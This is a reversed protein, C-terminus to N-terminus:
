VRRKSSLSLHISLHTYWGDLLFTAIGVTKVYEWKNTTREYSYLAVRYGFFSSNHYHPHPLYAYSSSGDHHSSSDHIRHLLSVLSSYPLPSLPSHPPIPSHPQTSHTSQASKASQASQTSQTSQLSKRADLVKQAAIVRDKVTNVMRTRKLLPSRSRRSGGGEGEGSETRAPFLSPQVARGRSKKVRKHGRSKRRV